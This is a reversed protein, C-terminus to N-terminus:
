REYYHVGSINIDKPDVGVEEWHCQGEPDVSSRVCEVCCPDDTPRDAHECGGCLHNNCTVIDYPHSM